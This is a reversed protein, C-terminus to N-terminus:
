KRGPAAVPMLQVLDVLLAEPGLSRDQARGGAVVFLEAAVGLAYTRTLSHDNVRAQNVRISTAVTARIRWIGSGPAPRLNGM